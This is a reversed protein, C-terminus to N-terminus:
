DIKSTTVGTKVEETGINNEKVIEELIEEVKPSAIERWFLVWLVQAFAQYFSSLALAAILFLLGGISASIFFGVNKAILFLIGGLIGFGLLFAIILAIIIVGFLIGLPIFLLGMVISPLINKRFLAYASELSNTISIKGLVLYIEGYTKLFSFIVLLPILILIGLFTLIGGSIYSHNVFLLVIPIAMVSIIIGLCLSLLIRLLFVKWFLKRGFRIASGFSFSEKKEIKEVSKIIGIKGWLALVSIAIFILFLFIFFPILWSSNAIFFNQFNELNPNNNKDDFSYNFMRLCQSLALFFGLTWLYRNKWTLLFAKKIIELYPIDLIKKNEQM